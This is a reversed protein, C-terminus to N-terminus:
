YATLNVQDLWVNYTDGNSDLDMQFAVDIEELTWDQQNPYTTNVPYVTGNLTLTNYQVSNGSRQVDWILHNWTNAQFMNATCPISTQEWGTAPADNWIDWHGDAKFNCESGWVWRQGGFTQNVDFELAQPANPNDIYFYLDYLFHSVNDGGAIPNFYLMNCYGPCDPSSPAMTFQASKGDMAPSSVNETMTSTPTGGGAACIQGARGSGPPFLGGCSQWGPMAQIGSITTQAAQSSITVELPTASIFGQNDEAMVILNHPGPSLFIQTNISSDFTFYDAITASPNSSNVDYVRMFFIPNTPTASAVVNVPSTITSNNAPSSVTLPFDTAGNLWKTSSPDEAPPAPYPSAPSWTIAEPPISPYTTQQPPPPPPTTTTSTTQPSSGSGCGTLLGGGALLAFAMAGRVMHHFRSRSQQLRPQTKPKEVRPFLACSWRPM